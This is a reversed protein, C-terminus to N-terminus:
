TEPEYSTEKNNTKIKYSFQEEGEIFKVGEPIVGTKKIFAKIKNLDPKIEEPIVRILENRANRIFIDLDAIEVRDPSKRIKLIGHPLDLTKLNNTRMFQELYSELFSIRKQIAESKNNLWNQIIDIEKQAAAHLNEIKQKLEAIQILILDCYAESQQQEKLEDEKLLEDLFNIETTEM